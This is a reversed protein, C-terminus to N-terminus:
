RRRGHLGLHRAGQTGLRHSGGERHAKGDFNDYGVYLANGSTGYAKRLFMLGLSKAAASFANVEKRDLGSVSVYARGAGSAPAPIVPKAYAAELAVRFDEKTRMTTSGEGM